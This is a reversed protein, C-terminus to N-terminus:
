LLKRYNNKKLRICAGNVCGTNVSMTDFCLGQISKGVGWKHLLSFTFNVVNEASGGSSLKSLGLTKEIGAGSVFM